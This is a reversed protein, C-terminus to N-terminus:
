LTQNMQCLKYALNVDKFCAISIPRGTVWICNILNYTSVYTLRTPALPGSFDHGGIIIKHVVFNTPSDCSIRLM